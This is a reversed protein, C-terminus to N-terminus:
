KYQTDRNNKWSRETSRNWGAQDWHISNYQCSLKGGYRRLAGKGMSVKKPLDEYGM